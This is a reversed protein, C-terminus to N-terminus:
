ASPMPVPQGLFRPERRILIDFLMQARALSERIRVRVGSAGRVPVAAYADADLGHVWSLVIARRAHSAQSVVLVRECGFVRRARVVSDLTRFGAHDTVIRDAPVGRAILADRMASPEDYDARSNDGSVLFATVRGSTWLDHAADIRRQFFLNRRGDSLTPSCGLVLAPRGPDVADVSQHLRGSARWACLAEGVLVPLSIGTVLVLVILRHRRRIKM